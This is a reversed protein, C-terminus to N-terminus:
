SFIAFRREGQRLQKHPGEGGTSMAAATFTSACSSHGEPSTLGVGTVAGGVLVDEAAATVAVPVDEVGKAGRGGTM